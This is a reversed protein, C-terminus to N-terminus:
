GNPFFKKSQSECLLLFDNRKAAIIGTKQVEDSNDNSPNLTKGYLVFWLQHFHIYQFSYYSVSGQDANIAKGSPLIGTNTYNKNGISLSHLM